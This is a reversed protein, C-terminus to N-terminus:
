DELYYQVTTVVRVRKYDPSGKDRDEISFYGQEARRIGGLRSNSDKAFQEAANRASVTAEAVMKPKISDLKTFIFEPMVGYEQSLVVGKSVLEGSREMARKVKDVQNTRLTVFSQAVYREDLKSAQDVGYQTKLDNIQPPSESIEEPKFGLSLLFARIEGKARDNLRQLSALDNASVKFMIPWVALDARVEMESFGKVTVYRDISKLKGLSGAILFASLVLSVGLLAAPVTLCGKREDVRFVGEELCSFILVWAM